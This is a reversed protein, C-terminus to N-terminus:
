LYKEDPVRKRIVQAPVGFAIVEPPLDKVVAAGAGVVTDAGISRRDRVAAGIGISSREGVRVWGGLHAGPAVSSFDGLACDHDVTAGTNVIVGSALDANPGLVAGAALFSGAGISASRAVVASPHVVTAFIVSPAQEMLSRTVSHRGWNDGIAAFLEADPFRGAIEAFNSPSGLIELGLKTTGAVLFSDLLGIPQYIGSAMAADLVVSAHGSSGILILRKPQEAREPQSEISNLLRV